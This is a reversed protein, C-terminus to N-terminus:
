SARSKMVSLIFKATGFIIKPCDSCLAFKLIDIDRNKKVDCDTLIDKYFTDRISDHKACHLLAHTADEVVKQDCSTCLRNERLIGRYRGTEIRLPLTDMRTKALLSRQKRDTVIKIYPELNYGDKLERFLDLRSM